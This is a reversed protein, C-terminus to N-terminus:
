HQAHPPSEAADTGVSFTLRVRECVRYSVNAYPHCEDLTPEPTFTGQASLRCQGASRRNSLRATLPSSRLSTTLPTQLAILTTTTTMTTFTPATSSSYPSSLLSPPSPILHGLWGGRGRIGKVGDGSCRLGDGDCRCVECTPCRAAPSAVYGRTLPDRSVASHVDVRPHHCGSGLRRM